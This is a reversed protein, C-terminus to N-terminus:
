IKPGAGQLPPPERKPSTCLITVCATVAIVFLGGIMLNQTLLHIVTLSRPTGVDFQLEGNRVEMKAGEHVYIDFHATQPGSNFYLWVRLGVTLSVFIGCLILGLWALRRRSFLM